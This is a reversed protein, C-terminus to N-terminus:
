VDHHLTFRANHRLSKVAHHNFFNILEGNFLLAFLTGLQVGIFQQEKLAVTLIVLIAPIFAVMQGYFVNGAFFRYALIDTLSDTPYMWLNARQYFSTGLCVIVIGLIVLCIRTGQGPQVQDSWFSFTTVFVHILQAFFLVFIFDGVVTFWDWEKILVVNVLIVAVGLCFWMLAFPQHIVQGVGLSAATWIGNGFGSVITMANGAAVFVLGIFFFLIRKSVTNEEIM